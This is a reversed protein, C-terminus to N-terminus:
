SVPAAMNLSAKAYQLAVDYRGKELNIKWVDRDENKVGLEFM